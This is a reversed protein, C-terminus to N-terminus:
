NDVSKSMRDQRRILMRDLTDALHSVVFISCLVLWFGIAIDFREPIYCPEFHFHPMM